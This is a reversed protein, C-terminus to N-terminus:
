DEFLLCFQVLGLLSVVFKTSFILIWAGKGPCFGRLASYTPFSSGFNRQTRSTSAGFYNRLNRRSYSPSSTVRM